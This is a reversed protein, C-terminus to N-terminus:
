GDQRAEFLAAFDEFGWDKIQAIEKEDMVSVNKVRRNGCKDCSGLSHLTTLRVLVNCSDCRLVPDVTLEEM